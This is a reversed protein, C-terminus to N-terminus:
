KRKCRKTTEDDDVDDTHEDEDGEKSEEDDDDDNDDDNDDDVDDDADDADGADDDKGEDGDNRDTNNVVGNKGDIKYVNSLILLLITLYAMVWKQDTLSCLFMSVLNLLWDWTSRLMSMIYTNIESLILM